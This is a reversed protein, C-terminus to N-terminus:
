LAWHPATMNTYRQPVGVHRGSVQYDLRSIIQVSSAPM